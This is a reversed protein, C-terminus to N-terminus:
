RCFDITKKLNERSIEATLSGGVFSLLGAKAGELLDEQRTLHASAALKGAQLEDALQLSRAELEGPTLGLGADTIDILVNLSDSM